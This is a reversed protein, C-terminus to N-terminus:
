RNLHPSKEGGKGTLVPLIIVLGTVDPKECEAGFIMLQVVSSGTLSSYKRIISISAIIDIQSCTVNNM